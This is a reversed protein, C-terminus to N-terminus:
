SYGEGKYEVIGAVAKPAQTAISGVKAGSRLDIKAVEGTFFNSVFVHQGGGALEILAWGFGELPIQHTTTGSADVLHISGSRLAYVIGDAACVMGFFMPPPGPPFPPIVAQLDPLQRDNVLDYRMLRTGTESTYVLTRQDPSLTSMTVGLFGGMGGHTETGYEKVLKGDATFLFVHGDGFRQTGPMFPLRTKMRAQVEPRISGGVVHEGMLLMGDAAFNVHSFARTGFEPRRVVRGDRYINLVVFSHSDFAWLVGKSDFKLGGVLHTTEDLWLEGKPALNADFQLIRGRGAHDDDANNLQTAGVFLDGNLFPQLSSSM